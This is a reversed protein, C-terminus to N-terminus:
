APQKVAGGLVLTTAKGLTPTTGGTFAVTDVVRIFPKAGTLDIDKEAEGNAVTIQAIAGSGAAGPVFDASNTGSADDAHQLKADLTQATPAGTVAGTSAQLVCSMYGRRDIWAGNVTGGSSALPPTGKLTKVYAGIDNMSPHM